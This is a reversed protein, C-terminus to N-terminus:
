SRANGAPGSRANRVPALFAAYRPAEAKKRDFPSARKHGMKEVLSRIRALCSEDNPERYDVTGSIESHMKAGGLEESDREGQSRERM